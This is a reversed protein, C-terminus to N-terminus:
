SYIKFNLNILVSEYFHTGGAGSQGELVIGQDPKVEFNKEVNKKNTGTRKDFSVITPARARRLWNLFTMLTTLPIPAM